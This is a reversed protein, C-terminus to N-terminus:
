YTASISDVVSMTQSTFGVVTGPKVWKQDPHVAIDRDGIYEGTNPDIIVDERQSSGDDIGLAVGTVGALNATRDTIQIGPLEALARYMAARAAAPALGTQLMADAIHLVEGPTGGKPAAEQKLKALMADTSTPLSQYFAPSGIDTPDGCVHTGQSRPYFNGCAATLDANQFNADPVPESMAVSESVTGGLWQRKGTLARVMHWDSHYDAPIWTQITEERLYSFGGGDAQQETFEEWAHNSLHRFQGPGLPLDTTRIALNAASALVQRASLLQVGSTHTAPSATPQQRTLGGQIAFAGAALLAVAAAAAVLVPVRKPFRRRGTEQATPATAGISHLVPARDVAGLVTARLPNMLVRAAREESHLLGLAEDLEADTWVTPLSGQTRDRM